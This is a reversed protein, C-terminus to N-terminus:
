AATPDDFRIVGGVPRGCAPCKWLAGHPHPACGLM